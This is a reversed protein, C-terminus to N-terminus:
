LDGKVAHRGAVVAWIAIDLTRHQCAKLFQRSIDISCGLFTGGFHRQFHSSRNSLPLALYTGAGHGEGSACREGFDEVLEHAHVLLFAKAELVDDDEHCILVVGQGGVANLRVQLHQLLLEEVAHVDGSLVDIRKVAVRRLLADGLVALGVLAHNLLHAADIDGQEAYPSHSIDGEVHRARLAVAVRAEHQEISRAARFGHFHESGFLVDGYAGDSHADGCDALGVFDEQQGPALLFGFHDLVGDLALHAIGLAGGEQLHVVVHLHHEVEGRGCVESTYAPWPEYRRAVPVILEDARGDYPEALLCALRDELEGVLVVVLVAEALQQGDVARGVVDVYLYEVVQLVGDGTPGAALRVGVVAIAGLAGLRRLLAHDDERRVGVVVDDRHAARELAQHLLFVLHVHGILGAAIDSHAVFLYEAEHM